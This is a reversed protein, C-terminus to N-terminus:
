PNRSVCMYISFIPLPRDVLFGTKQVVNISEKSSKVDQLFALDATFLKREMKGDGTRQIIFEKLETQSLKTMRTGTSKSLM